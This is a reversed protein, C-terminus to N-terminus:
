DGQSDGRLSRVAWCLLRRESAIKSVVSGEKGELLVEEQCSLACVAAVPTNRFGLAPSVTHGGGWRHGSVTFEACRCVRLRQISVYCLLLCVRVCVCMGFM